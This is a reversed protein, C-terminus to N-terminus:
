ISAGKGSGEEKAKEALFVDVEGKLIGLIDSGGLSQTQAGETGPPPAPVVSSEAYLSHGTAGPM